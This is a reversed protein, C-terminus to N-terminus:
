KIVKYSRYLAHFNNRLDTDLHWHGFYWNKYKVLPLLEQLRLESNRAIGRTIQYFPQSYLLSAPMTHSIIIDVSNQHRELNSIANNIDDYTISEEEWWSSNIIRKEVDTSEAGGLALIKLGDIQYIEGRILHICDQFLKHVKGNKWMEIKYSNLISFNEHNGDVFLITFPLKKMMEETYILQQQNWCGGFDGAVIVYDSKTLSPLDSAIKFLVKNTLNGHTDGTVIIM